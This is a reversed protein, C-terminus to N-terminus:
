GIQGCLKPVKHIKADQSFITLSNHISLFHAKGLLTVAHTEPQKISKTSCLKRSCVFELIWISLTQQSKGTSPVPAAIEKETSYACADTNYKIEQQSITHETTM